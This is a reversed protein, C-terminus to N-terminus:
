PYLFRHLLELLEITSGTSGTAGRELALAVSEEKGGGASFFFFPTTLGLQRVQDLLAYGERPGEWRGM